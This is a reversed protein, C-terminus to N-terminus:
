EMPEAALSELQPADGPKLRYIRLLLEALRRAHRQLADLQGPNPEIRHAELLVRLEWTLRLLEDASAEMLASDLYDEHPLRSAQALLQQRLARWPAGDLAEALPVVVLKTARRLAEIPRQGALRRELQRITSKLRRQEKILQLPITTSPVFDAMREEVLALNERAEKLNHQLTEIEAPM